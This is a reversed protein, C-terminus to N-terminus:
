VVNKIIFNELEDLQSFLHVNAKYHESMDVFDKLMGKKADVFGEVIGTKSYVKKQLSQEVAVVFETNLADTYIKCNKIRSHEVELLIDVCGWYFRTDFRHTFFPEKGFRWDWSKAKVIEDKITLDNCMLEHDVIEINYFKNHDVSNSKLFSRTLVGDWVDRTINPLYTSLNIVRSKVSTIGKSELKAKNPNLYRPLADLDLKLLMTGHQLVMDKTCRYASGSVKKDGILIDNRGSAVGNLGLIKLANIIIQNNAAKINEFKYDKQTKTFISFLSNGLDHYVAGGGSKRRVFEVGDKEVASLNCEKHANQNCGIVVSPKNQWLYLISSNTPMTSINTQFDDFLKKEYALNFFTDNSLSKVIKLQPKHGIYLPKANTSFSRSLKYLLM